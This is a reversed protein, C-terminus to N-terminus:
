ANKGEKNNRDVPPKFPWIVTNRDFNSKYDIAVNKINIGFLDHMENEYLFANWYIGSVSLVEIGSSALNVRLNIFEFNRDFSYNLELGQDLKTCCIQVLRYGEEYCQKVRDQLESVEISIMKQFEIM